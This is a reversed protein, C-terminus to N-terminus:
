DELEVVEYGCYFYHPTIYYKYRSCFKDRKIICRECLKKKIVNYVEDRAVVRM